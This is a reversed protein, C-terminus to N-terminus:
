IQLFAPTLCLSTCVYVVCHYTYVHCKNALRYAHTHSYIYIYLEKYDLAHASESVIYRQLGHEEGTIKTVCEPAYSIWSLHGNLEM